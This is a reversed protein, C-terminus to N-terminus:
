MTLVKCKYGDGTMREFVRQQDTEDTCEVMVTYSDAIVKQADGDGDGDAKRALLQDIDKDSFGTLVEDISEDSRLAALADVLETKWGGLETLRNDVIAYATRDAGTLKTRVVALHGHGLERMSRVTGNGAVIVGNQDVLVPRQQGFRRLSAKIGAVNEDPHSRVNSPDESVTDIPVALPRLSEEIYSLDPGDPAKSPSAKTRKRPPRKATKQTNKM